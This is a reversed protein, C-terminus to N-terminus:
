ADALGRHNLYLVIRFDSGRRHILYSSSLRVADGEARPALWETRALVYHEDLQQYTMQELEAPGIGAAAFMEARKPLFGIFAQRPVAQVHDKDASLFEEGFCGALVDLDLDASARAFRQFFADVQEDLSASPVASM